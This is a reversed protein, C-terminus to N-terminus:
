TSLEAAIDNDVDSGGEEESADVDSGSEEESAVPVALPPAPPQLLAAKVRAVLAPKLLPLDKQGFKYLLLIKLAKVQRFKSPVDDYRFGVKKYEAWIAPVAATNAAIVAAAEDKKNKKKKEAVAVEAVKKADVAAWHALMSGHTAEGHTGPLSFCVAATMRRNARPHTKKAAIVAARQAETGALAHIVTTALSSRAQKVRAARTEKAASAAAAKKNEAVLDWYAKRTFPVIGMTEWMKVCRVRDFGINWSPAICPILDGHSLSAGVSSEGRMAALAKTRLRKNIAMRFKPKIIRFAGGKVDCGQLLWSLYPTKLLIVMNHARAWRLVTPHIHTFVGDLFAILPQAATAPPLQPLLAAMYRIIEEATYSGKLNAGFVAEFPKNTRTDIVPVTVAHGDADVEWSPDWSNEAGNFCFGPRLPVGAAPNAHLYYPSRTLNNAPNACFSVTFLDFEGATSGGVASLAAASSHEVVSTGDDDVSCPMRETQDKSADDAASTKFRSEDFEFIMERGKQTIIIPPSYPLAPDFAPNVAAYGVYRLLVTKVNDYHKKLNEETYWEKRKIDLPRINKANLDNRSLWGPYWQRKLDQPVQLGAEQLAAEVFIIIEEKFIPLDFERVGRVIDALDREVEKPVMLKRGGKEPTVSDAKGARQAQTHSFQVEFDRQVDAAVRRSTSGGRMKERAARWALTKREPTTANTPFLAAAPPATTRRENLANDAIAIEAVSPSKKRYHKVWYAAAQKTVDFIKCYMTLQEEYTVHLIACCKRDVLKDAASPGVELVAAAPAAKSTKGVCQRKPRTSM